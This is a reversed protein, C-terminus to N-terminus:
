LLRQGGDGAAEAEAVTAAVTVGKGSSLGDAKIVLPAGRERVYAGAPGAASSAGASGSSLPQSPQNGGRGKSSSCARVGVRPTGTLASCSCGPRRNVM